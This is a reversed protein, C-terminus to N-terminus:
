ERELAAHGTGAATPDNVVEKGRAEQWKGQAEWEWYDLPVSPQQTVNKRVM